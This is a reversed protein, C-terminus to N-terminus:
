VVLSINGDTLAPGAPLGLFGCLRRCWSDFLRARDRTEDRNHTWVAAQDTDLNEGSRPVAGELCHLTVLYRRAVGVEAQSLNNMRFELLGYVQYFRWTQFGAPAAGYAPYGCYRRIDTKEADTFPIV